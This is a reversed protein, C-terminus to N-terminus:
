ARLRCHNEYRVMEVILNKLQGEDFEELPIKTRRDRGIRFRLIVEKDTIMQANYTPTYGHEFAVCGNEGIYERIARILSEKETETPKTEQPSGNLQLRKM